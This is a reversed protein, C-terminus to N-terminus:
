SPAHDITEGSASGDVTAARCRDWAGASGLSRLQSKQIKGSPTLPLSDVVQVYRPVLYKPLRDSAWSAVEEPEIGAGPRPVVFVLIEDEGGDEDAPAAVAACSGVNPHGLIPQEVEYSSINEGRRRLSDNLRDVFYYWGDEDMRLGDGTHLWLNRRTAATADPMGFYGLSVIWPEKPRAQLEGVAGVPVEEDTAMDALRIEFYQELGLGVAGEPRDSSYPTLIPMGLETQGYGEVFAEIGFREQLMPQFQWATPLSFVCRLRSGRDRPDVPQKAVWEMMVGLFSVVTASSEHLRESFKNPSFKEYLSVTGGAIITPYTTCFQANGHFLPSAVMYTDDETLRVLAGTEEAFFHLQAHPLMVGKSPGTTGSTFVIGGLEAPCPEPLSDDGAPALLSDFTVASFGLRAVSRVAERAGDGLLILRPADSRQGDVVDLLRDLYRETVVVAGPRSVDVVHALLPGFYETNVPVEVIGAKAAGFWAFLYEACNDSLIMLRDGRSLGLSALHWAIRTTLEDVERYSFVRADDGNRPGAGRDILCPKPGYRRAQRALVSSLTWESRDEFSFPIRGFGRRGAVGGPRAGANM